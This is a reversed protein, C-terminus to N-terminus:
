RNRSSILTSVEFAKTFYHLIPSTVTLTIWLLILPTMITSMSFNKGKNDDPGDGSSMGMGNPVQDYYDLSEAIVLVSWFLWISCLAIQVALLYGVKHGAVKLPSSAYSQYPNMYPLFSFLLLAIAFGLFAVIWFPALIVSWSRQLSRDLQCSILLPQVFRLMTFMILVFPSSWVPGTYEQRLHNLKDLRPILFYSDYAKISIALLISIWAPLLILTLKTPIVSKYLCVLAVIKGYFSAFLILLNSMHQCTKREEKCSSERMQDINNHNNAASLVSGDAAPQASEEDMRDHDRQVGERDHNSGNNVEQIGEYGQRNATAGYFFPTIFKCYLPYVNRGISWLNSVFLPFVVIIWPINTMEVSEVTQQLKVLLLVLFIIVAVYSPLTETPTQDHSPLFCRLTTYLNHMASPRHQQSGSSNVVVTLTSHQPPHLSQEMM